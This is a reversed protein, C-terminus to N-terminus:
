SAFAAAIEGAAFALADSEGAESDKNPGPRSSVFGGASEVCMWFRLHLVRQLAEGFAAGNEDDGMTEGGHAVGIADQREFAAANDFDAAVVFEDGLVAEVRAKRAEM